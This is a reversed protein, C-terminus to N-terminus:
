VDILTLWKIRKTVRILFAIIKRVFIIILLRYM